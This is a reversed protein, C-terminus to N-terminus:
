VDRAGSARYEVSTNERPGVKGEGESTQRGTPLPSPSPPCSLSRKPGAEGEDREMPSPPSKTLKNISEKTVKKSLSFYFTAGENPKGEAWMRGGHRKVIRQAIALGVGTGEFEEQSHLKRFVGFLKDAFQMDFGVGNDKVYYVNQDEKAISGIEIVGKDKPRTFKYANTLLNVWVQRIMAPDGMTEPLIDIKLQTTQEPSFLNMENCIARALDSMDINSCRIEQHGLRSFTLLGDILQLMHQTQGHIIKLFEKGKVDLNKSHKEVLMRSFGDITMLPNRLDHSVSYSFAELEKNAVELDRTRRRLSLLDGFRARAIEIAQSLERVKPPKALFAGVGVASAEELMEPTDYATLIVIPTPCRDQIIKAAEIGDLDPMKIDMLIVDPRLETAMEVGQRGDTARGVVIYGAEEAVGQIMEAVLFNDETILVKVRNDM